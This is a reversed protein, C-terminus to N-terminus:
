NIYSLRFFDSTMESTLFFSIEVDVPLKQKSRDSTDYIYITDQKGTCHMPPPEAYEDPGCQTCKKAARSYELQGFYGFIFFYLFLFHFSHNIYAKLYWNESIKIPTLLISLVPKHSSKVNESKIEINKPRSCNKRAAYMTKGCTGSSILRTHWVAVLADCVPLCAVIKSEESWDLHFYRPLDQFINRESMRFSEGVKQPERIYVLYVATYSCVFTVRFNSNASQAFYYM